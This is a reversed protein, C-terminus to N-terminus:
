DCNDNILTGGSTFAYGGCEYRTAFVDSHPGGTHWAPDGGDPFNGMATYYINTCSYSNAWESGSGDWKLDWGGHTPDSISYGSCPSCWRQYTYGEYAYAGTGGCNGGVQPICDDWSGAKCCMTQMGADFRWTQVDDGWELPENPDICVLNVTPPDEHHFTGLGVCDETRCDDDVIANTYKRTAFGTCESGTPWGSVWRNGSCNPSNSGCTNCNVINWATVGGSLSLHACSNSIDDQCLSDYQTGDIVPCCKDWVETGEFIPESRFEVDELDGTELDENSPEEVELSCAVLTVFLLLPRNTM